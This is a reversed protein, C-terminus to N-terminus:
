GRGYGRVRVGEGGGGEREREAEVGSGGRGEGEGGAETAGGRRREEQEGGGGGAGAPDPDPAPAAQLSPRVHRGAVARSSWRMSCLSPRRTGLGDRSRRAGLGGSCARKPPLVSSSSLSLSPCERPATGGTARCEHGIGIEVTRRGGDEGEERGERKNRRCGAVGAACGDGSGRQPTAPSLL